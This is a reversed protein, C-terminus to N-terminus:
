IVQKSSFPNSLFFLKGFFLSFFFLFVSILFIILMTHVFTEYARNIYQFVFRM